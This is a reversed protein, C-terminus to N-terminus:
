KIQIQKCVFHEQDYLSEWFNYMHDKNDYGNICIQTKKTCPTLRCIQITKFWRGMQQFCVFCFGLDLVHLEVNEM